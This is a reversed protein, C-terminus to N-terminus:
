DGNLKDDLAKHVVNFVAPELVPKPPEKLKKIKWLLYGASALLAILISILIILWRIMVITTIETQIPIPFPYLLEFWYTLTAITAGCTSWITIIPKTLKLGKIKSEYSEM